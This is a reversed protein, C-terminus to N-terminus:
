LMCMDCGNKSTLDPASVCTEIQRSAGRGNDPSTPNHGFGGQQEAMSGDTLISHHLTRTCDVSQRLVQVIM